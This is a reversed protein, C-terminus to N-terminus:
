IRKSPIRSKLGCCLIKGMQEGSDLEFLKELFAAIGEEDNSETVLDAKQKVECPANGMAIGLGAYELMEIDNLNDGFALIEERKINFYRALFSVGTSKSVGAALIDLENESNMRMSVSQGFIGKAKDQIALLTEPKGYLEIKAPPTKLIEKAKKINGANEVPMMVLDRMFNIYGSFCFRRFLLAKFLEKMWTVRYNRGACIQRDELFIQVYLDQFFRALDLIERALEVSISNYHLVEGTFVDRVLAGDCCVIPANVPLYRAIRYASWYFRGTALTVKIGREMATKLALHTRPTIAYRSTLLTGDVDLAILKYPIGNQMQEERERKENKKLFLLASPGNGDATQILIRYRQNETM